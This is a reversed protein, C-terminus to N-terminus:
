YTLKKQVLELTLPVETLIKSIRKGVDGKGYPNRCNSCHKRFSTDFLCKKIAHYIEQANYGTDICNAARLRGKQRNGINVTPCGFAPTDKIGSSSNGVCVGRGVRGCINLLGYYNRRGVSEFVSLNPCQKSKKKISDMIRLGGADNNPFTMIIHINEHALKRMAQIVPDIQKLAEDAQTAISHQTCLVLPRSLDIKFNLVLEDPPTFDGAKILDVGPYGVTFIRWPEEGMRVLRQSADANSTFHLHALKSMAHRVMDDLAGVETCIIGLMKN